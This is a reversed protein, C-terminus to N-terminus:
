KSEKLSILESLFDLQKPVIFNRAETYTFYRGDDVESVNIIIGSKKPYEVEIKNSNVEFRDGELLGEDLDYEYAWCYVKKHKNQKIPELDILRKHDYSISMGIEETIERIACTLKSTDSKELHGKPIGWLANKNYPGGPHILFFELVDRQRYLLIGCSVQTPM